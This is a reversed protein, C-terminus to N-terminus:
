FHVLPWGVIDHSRRQLLIAILLRPQLVDRRKGQHLLDKIEDILETTVTLSTARIHRQYPFRSKHLEPSFVPVRPLVWLTEYIWYERGYEPRTIALKGFLRCKNKPHVSICQQEEVQLNFSSDSKRWLRHWLSVQPRPAWVFICTQGHSVSRAKSRQVTVGEAM